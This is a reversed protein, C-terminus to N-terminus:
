DRKIIGGGLQDLDVQSDKGPIDRVLTRLKDSDGDFNIDETETIDFLLNFLENTNNREQGLKHLLFKETNNRVRNGLIFIWGEISQILEGYIKLGLNDSKAWDWGFPKYRSLNTRELGPTRTPRSNSLFTSVSESNQLSPIYDTGNLVVTLIQLENDPERGQKKFSLTERNFQGNESYSILHTIELRGSSLGKNEYAYKIEM